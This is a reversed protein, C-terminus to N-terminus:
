YIKHNGSSPEAPRNGSFNLFIRNNRYEMNLDKYGELMASEMKSHVCGTLIWLKDKVHPILKRTTHLSPFSQGSQCVLLVCTNTMRRVQIEDSGPFFVQNKTILIGTIM